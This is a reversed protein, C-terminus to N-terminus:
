NEENRGRGLRLADKRKRVGGNQEPQKTSRRKQWGRTDQSGYLALKTWVALV